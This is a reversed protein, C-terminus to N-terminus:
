KPNLAISDFLHNCFKDFGHRTEQIFEDLVLILLRLKRMLKGRHRITVRLVQSERLDLHVFGLSGGARNNL